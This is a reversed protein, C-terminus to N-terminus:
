FAVQTTTGGIDISTIRESGAEDKTEVATFNFKKPATGLKAPTTFSKRNSDTFVANGGEVQLKYQGPALKITGVQETKALVVTYSKSGAL